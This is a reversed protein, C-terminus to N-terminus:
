DGSALQTIEVYGNGNNTNIDELGIVINSALSSNVFSGSGGGASLQDCGCGISGGSPSGTFGGSSGGYFETSAGGCPFGGERGRLENTVSGGLGGQLFGQGPTTYSNASQIGSTYFGGCGSPTVDCGAGIPGGNGFSAPKLRLVM